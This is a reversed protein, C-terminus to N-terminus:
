FFFFHHIVKQFAPKVYFVSLVCMVLSTYSEAGVEGLILSIKIDTSLISWFRGLHFCTISSDCTPKIYFFKILHIRLSGLTIAFNFSGLINWQFYEPLCRAKHRECKAVRNPNLHHHVIISPSILACAHVHIYPYRSIRIKSQM